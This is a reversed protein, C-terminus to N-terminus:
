EIDIDELEAAGQCSPPDNDIETKIPKTPPAPQFDTRKDGVIKVESFHKRLIDAVKKINGSLQSRPHTKGM